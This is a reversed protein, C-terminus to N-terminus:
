MQIYTYGVNTHVCLRGTVIRAHQVRSSPDDGVRRWCQPRFRPPAFCICNLCYLPVGVFENCLAPREYTRVNMYKIDVCAICMYTCVCEITYVCAYGDM